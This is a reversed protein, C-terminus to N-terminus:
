GGLAILWDKLLLNRNNRETITGGLATVIDALLDNRM